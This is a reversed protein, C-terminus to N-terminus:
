FDPTLLWFYDDPPPRRAVRNAQYPRMAHAEHWGVVILTPFPTGMAWM